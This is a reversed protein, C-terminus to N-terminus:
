PPLCDPDPVVSTCDFGGVMCPVVCEEYITEPPLWDFCGDTCLQHACACNSLCTSRDFPDAMLNCCECEPPVNDLEDEDTGHRSVKEICRMQCEYELELEGDEYIFCCNLCDEPHPTPEWHVNCCQHIHDRKWLVIIRQAWLQDALGDMQAATRSLGCAPMSPPDGGLVCGPHDGPDECDMGCDVSPQYCNAGWQSDICEQPINSDRWQGTGHDDFWEEPAGSHAARHYGGDPGHNNQNNFVKYNCYDIFGDDGVTDACCFSRCCMNLHGPGSFVRRGSTGAPALQGNYTGVMCIDMCAPVYDIWMCRYFGNHGSGWLNSDWSAMATNYFPDWFLDGTDWACRVNKCDAVCAAYEEPTLAGADCYPPFPCAAQCGHVAAQKSKHECVRHGGDYGNPPIVTTNLPDFEDICYMRCVAYAWDHCGLYNWDPGPPDVPENWLFREHRTPHYGGVAPNDNVVGARIANRITNIEHVYNLLQEAENNWGAWFGDAMANCQGAAVEDLCF